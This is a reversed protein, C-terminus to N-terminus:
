AWQQSGGGGNQCNKMADLFYQCSQQDGNNHKLCEFFNQKDLQCADGGSTNMAMQQQQQQMGQDAAEDGGSMMGAAAGVARHAIASGTGFAMGQAITSGIGSMMGGGSSQQVPAPPAAAPARAPARTAPKRGFSM